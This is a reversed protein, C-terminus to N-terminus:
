ADALHHCLQDSVKRFSQLFELNLSLRHSYLQWHVLHTSEALTTTNSM